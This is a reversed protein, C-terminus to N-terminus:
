SAKYIGDTLIVSGDRKLGGLANTISGEFSTDGKAGMAELIQGRKMGEPHAKLTALVDDKVGMRRGSPSRPASAVTGGEVLRYNFGLENLMAVAEEAKTVAEAKADALLKQKQAELEEIQKLVDSM